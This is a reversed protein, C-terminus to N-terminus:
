LILLHLHYSGTLRTIYFPVHDSKILPNEWPDYKNYGSATLDDQEINDIFLGARMYSHAVNNEFLMIETHKSEEFQTLNLNRSPGTPLDPYIFWFGVGDGGGAANNLVKVNPNTLWFSVPGKSKDTPIAGTPNSDPPVRVAGTWKRQNLALNGYLTAGKEEGDELFYGHGITNYCTNGVLLANHTGHVTVCRFTDHISNQRIYSRTDYVDDDLLDLCMHYHLPYRGLIEPDGMSSLEIGQVRVSKFGMLFKIHGGNTNGSAIEGKIHIKRTLMGVEARMDVGKYIEGFHTYFLPRSLKIQNDDCEDCREIMVVEAQNYKYDTSAIVIRDRYLFTFLEAINADQQAQTNRDLRKFISSVMGGTRNFHYIYMGARNDIGPVERHRFSQGATYDFKPATETLKTWGLKEEGHLELIGGQRVGIFKGGFGAIDIDVHEGLLTIDVNGIFRCDESGIHMEGGNEIVICHVRLNPNHDPSFVLRGGSKVYICNYQSVALDDVLIPKTIDVDSDATPIGGAGWTNSESWLELDGALHPCLGQIFGLLSVFCVLIVTRM